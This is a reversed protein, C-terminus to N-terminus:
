ILELHLFRFRERFRHNSPRDPHVGKGKTLGKEIPCALHVPDSLSPLSIILM